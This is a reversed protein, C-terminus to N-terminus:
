QRHQNIYDTLFQKEQYDMSLFEIGLRYKDSRPMADSRIVKATAGIVEPLFNIEVNLYSNPAIFGDNLFGMGGASIDGSIASNFEPRGRIQYRLPIKVNIRPSRRKETWNVPM